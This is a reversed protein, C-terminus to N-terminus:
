GDKTRRRIEAALTARARALRSMVTGIPVDLIAAIRKYSLDEIERLVLLERAAAPLADLAAVVTRRADAALLATEPTTPAAALAQTGALAADLEMDADDLSATPAGRARRLSVFTNRVIGLLWPRAEDGRFSDFYRWARLFAEQTVDQAEPEDRTLRRAYGYAADLHPLVLTAFRRALSTDTM